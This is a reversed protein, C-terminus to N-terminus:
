GSRTILFIGLCIFLIGSLRNFGLMEGFLARGAVATVIYGVSLMPYAYGVDVRSLVLLWLFISVAYCAMGLILFPNVIVKLGIPLLNELTFAFPGIVRMGQKICLQALSNLLVGSLILPIYKNM